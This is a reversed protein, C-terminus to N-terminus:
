CDADGVARVIRVASGRRLTINMRFMVDGENVTPNEPGARVIVVGVRLDGLRYYYRQVKRDARTLSKIQQLRVDSGDLNMWAEDGDGRALFIYATNSLRSRGAPYFYLNACGAMLGTAPYDKITGVRPLISRKSSQAACDFSWFGGAFACCLLTLVRVRRSLFLFNPLM